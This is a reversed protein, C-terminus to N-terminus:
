VHETLTKSYGVGPVYARLKVKHPMSADVSPALYFRGNSRLWGRTLWQWRGHRRIEIVVSRHAVSGGTAKVWGYVSLVHPWHGSSRAVTRARHRSRLVVRHSRRKKTAAPPTPTPDAPPTVTTDPRNPNVVPPLTPAPPEVAPLPPSAVSDTFAATEASLQDTAITFGDFLIHATGTIQPNRYIGVRAHNTMPVGNADQTMTHTHTRDLLLKEGQGDLDGFLEVFGVNDDPSNMIHLTFKAWHNRQAPASWMQYTNLVYTNRTTNEMIWKNDKVSLSIPPCGGDGEQHIQFFVNWMHTDIPYDDPLYVQFSIWREDGAHFLPFGSKAPNGMGIECREGWSYDGDRIELQYAHKGQAVPSDVQQVRSGDQCSYNAWDQALPREAGSFSLIGASATAATFAFAALAALVAICIRRIRLTM